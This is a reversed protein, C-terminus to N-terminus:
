NNVLLLWHEKRALTDKRMDRARAPTDKRMDRARAPTDKRMDRARAPTDKCMNVCTLIRPHPLSVPPATLVCFNQIVVLRAICM